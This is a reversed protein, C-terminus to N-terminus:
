RAGGGLQALVAAVRSPSLPKFLIADAGSSTLEESTASGSDSTVVLVSLAALKPSARIRRLLGIGDMVPMNLDTVLLDFPSERLAALALEGNAAEQFEWDRGGAIQLCRRIITRAMQSDDAILVRKM